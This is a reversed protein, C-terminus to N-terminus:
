GGDISLDKLHDKLQSNIRVIIKHENKIILKKINYIM